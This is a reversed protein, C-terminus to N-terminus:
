HQAPTWTAQIDTAPTQTLNRPTTDRGIPSAVPHRYINLAPPQGAQL